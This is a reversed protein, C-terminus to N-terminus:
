IIKSFIFRRRQRITSYTVELKPWYTSNSYESSRFWLTNYDTDENTAGVPAVWLMVGLNPVTNSVWQQTLATLDWNKWTYIQGNQFLMTSEMTGNADTTTSDAGGGIKGYQVKWAVGTRRNDRNAQSKAWSEYVQHAQVWRDGWTSGVGSYYYLKMQANLVTASAPITSVNFSVLSRSKSVGTNKAISLSGGSGYFGGDMLRVDSSNTVTTTPDIILDGALASSIWSM